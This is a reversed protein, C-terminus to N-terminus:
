LATAMEAREEETLVGITQDIELAANFHRKAEDTNGLKVCVRGLQLLAKARGQSGEPQKTVLAQFDRRADELRGPMNMLITGRTDLLNANDPELSLGKDALEVAKAYNHDSEQYIWALDNLVQVNEPYEELLKEYQQKAGAADGNQYLTSALGLRASALGPLLELAQEFLEVAKEKLAPANTAALVMATKVVMAPEREVASFREEILTRVEENRGQAVLWLLRSYVVNSSNADVAEARKLWGDAKEMDSTLRYLDALTVIADIATEGEESECYALLEPIARAPEGSFVLMQARSLLAGENDPDTALKRDLMDVAAELAGGERTSAAVTLIVSRAGAHNPDEALAMQAAELAMRPNDLALEVQAQTFLLDPNNPNTGIARMAYDRAADHKGEQMAIGILAQHADVATPEDRVVTELMDRAEDLYAVNNPDQRYEALRQMARVKILQPDNPMEKTLHDLLEGAENVDEPGGRFFLARMLSRKMVLSNPDRASGNKLAGIADDLRGNEAYFNGLLMYGENGRNPDATLKVYEAEAGQLDGERGLYVARLLHSDFSGEKAVYADLIERAEGDRGEARLMGARAAAIALSGGTIEEAQDLYDNADSFSNRDQSYLLRALLIRSQADQPDNSVRLELEEIAKAFEGSRLSGVIQLNSKRRADAGTQDAMEMAEDLRGQRELLTILRDAVDTAGPNRALAQRCVSEARQLDDLQEYMSATLLYPTSWQPDATICYQLMEAITQQKSRWDQSSLWLRAQRLRWQLGTEGEAAHLEDILDQASEQDSNIAETDLLLMRARIERKDAEAIGRLLDIGIQEDGYLLEFVARQMSVARQEWKGVVKESAEQLCDLAKEYDANARHLSSMFCGPNPWRPITIVRMKAHCGSGGGDESERFYRSALQMRARLPEDCEEIADKLEDEAEEPRDRYVAIMAQLIRIDVRRRTSRVCNWWNRRWSQLARRM